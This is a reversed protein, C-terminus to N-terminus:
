VFSLEGLIAVIVLIAPSLRVVARADDFALLIENISANSPNGDNRLDRRASWWKTTFYASALLSM